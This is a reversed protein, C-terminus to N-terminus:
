ATLSSGFGDGTEAFDAIGPSDQSWLQSGTATVGASAGPIVHVVGARAQAGLTESPVGVVLESFTDSNLKGAALASGFRDGAEATDSIGATNQSWQQSGTATLGGASGYLVHVLGADAITALDEDPVGIALDQGAASNFDGVALTAGFGDSAEAFDVIGASDQSWLQSGTATLGTNAGNIVHVVGADTTPGTTESPVGVVLESFTDTNLKGAALAAGVRDGVEIADSIGATDQSWLQSGTATTGGASGPLVHVVGGDVVSALDERPAGIALDQGATGDFDGIALSAGFNDGAEAFEAVGASDQSWLQSGTATLGGAGGTIVHVVGTDNTEDPVGIVLEASGDTNLKGAALANGFRDDTEATDAIGTSNQTWTQSGTATLGGVAGYLVHVMGGDVVAAVDERPAGIALDDRGDGNFDGATMTAGFGDGAEAFDAIGASDQSWLQSGTGSVGSATGYLVHVAGADAVGVLNEGPAGVALDGIGDGNFDGRVSGDSMPPPPPPTSGVFSTENAANCPATLSAHNADGSYSARWRYSGAVTPTFDTSTASGGVLPRNPSTFIPTQTCTGDAPAYLMFTVTGTPDGPVDSTLTAVDRIPEGVVSDTANTALVPTAPVVTILASLSNSVSLGSVAGQSTLRLNARTQVGPTGPDVDITPVKLVSFTFNVTCSNAGSPPALVLPGGQRTFTV